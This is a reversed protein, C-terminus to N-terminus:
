GRPPYVIYDIWMPVNQGTFMEGIVLAVHVGGCKNVSSADTQNVILSWNGTSPEIEMHVEPIIGKPSDFSYIGKKTTVKKEM